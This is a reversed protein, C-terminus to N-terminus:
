SVKLFGKYWDQIETETFSTQNLLEEVADQKLKPQKQGM